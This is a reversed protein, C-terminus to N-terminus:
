ARWAAPPGEGRRRAQWTLAVQGVLLMGLTFALIMTAIANAEPTVGRRPESRAADVPNRAARRRRAPAPRITRIEDPRRGRDPAPM